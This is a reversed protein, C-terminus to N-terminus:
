CELEKMMKNYSKPIFKKCFIPYYTKGFDKEGEHFRKQYGCNVCVGKHIITLHNSTDDDYIFNSIMFKHGIAWNPKSNKFCYFGIEGNEFIVQATRKGERDEWEVIDGIEIKNGNKDLM